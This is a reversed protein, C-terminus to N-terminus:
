WKKGRTIERKLLGKLSGRKKVSMKRSEHVCNKVRQWKGYYLKHESVM